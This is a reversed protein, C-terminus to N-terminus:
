AFVVGTRRIAQAARATRAGSQRWRRSSEGEMREADAMSAEKHKKLGGAKARPGTM